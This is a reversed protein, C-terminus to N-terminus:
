LRNTATAEGTFVARTVTAFDQCPQGDRESIAVLEGDFVTDGPTAAFGDLLSGLRPTLNTGQRSWARMGRDRDIEILLRFGDWKPQMVWEGGSPWCRASASLM